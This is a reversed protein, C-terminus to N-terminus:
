ARILDVLFTGRFVAVICFQTQPSRVHKTVLEQLIFVGGLFRVEFEFDVEM